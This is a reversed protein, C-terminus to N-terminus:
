KYIIIIIHIHFMLTVKTVWVWGCWGDVVVWVWGCGGVDM